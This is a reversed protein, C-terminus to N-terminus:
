LFCTECCFANRLPKVVFCVEDYYHCAVAVVTDALSLEVGLLLRYGLDVCVDGACDGGVVSELLADNEQKYVFAEAYKQRGEESLNRWMSALVKTTEHQKKPGNPISAALEQYKESFFCHYPGAGTKSFPNNSGPNREIVSTHSIYAAISLFVLYPHVKTACCM